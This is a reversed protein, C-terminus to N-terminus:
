KVYYKNFISLFLHNSFTDIQLLFFCQIHNKFFRDFLYNISYKTYYIQRLSESRNTVCKRTKLSQLRHQGDTLFPFGMLSSSIGGGTAVPPFGEAAAGGASGIVSCSFGAGAFVGGCVALTM